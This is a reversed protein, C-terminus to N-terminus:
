LATLIQNRVMDAARMGVLSGIAIGMGGMRVAVGTRPTLCTIVPRKQPGIGLIGSWSQSITYDKGPLVHRCLIQELASRILSTEGFRDTLETEPALQRGGGILVRDGVPRFYYYGRDMHVGSKLQLGRVPATILVQNRAPIVELHPLLRRTFGNTALLLFGTDLRGVSTELTVGQESESWGAMEVGFYVHIGAQRSQELLSAMMHGPHLLGEYRNRVAGAFAELGEEGLRAPADEYVRDLGLLAVLRENWVPLRSLCRCYLAADEFVELGGADSYQMTTEPVRRRLLQLGDWRMRVTELVVDTGSTDEDDMLESLSGFCAFGANRTSAGEPLVGREIVQIRASPLSERLALATSLGVIGAGLITIDTERWWLDSEWYSPRYLDKM